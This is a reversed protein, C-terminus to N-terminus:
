LEKAPLANAPICATSSLVYRWGAMVIASDPCKKAYAKVTDVMSTAGAESGGEEELYGALDAKYESSDVGQFAVHKVKKKVEEM